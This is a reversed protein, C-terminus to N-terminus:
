SKRVTVIQEWIRSLPIGKDTKHKTNCDKIQERNRKETLIQRRKMKENRQYDIARNM